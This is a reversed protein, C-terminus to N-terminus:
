ALLLMRAITHSQALQQQLLELTRFEANARAAVGPCITFARVTAYSGSLLWFCDADRPLVSVRQSLCGACQVWVLAM